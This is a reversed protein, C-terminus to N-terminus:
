RHQTCYNSGGNQDRSCQRGKYTKASCRNIKEPLKCTGPSGKKANCKARIKEYKSCTAPYSIMPRGLKKNVYEHVLYLWATLNERAMLCVDTLPFVNLAEKFVKEFKQGYPLTDAVLNYFMQYNKKNHKDPDYNYAVTHLFYWMNRTHEANKLDNNKLIREYKKYVQEFSPNATKLLGQNRLKNNVKNHVQYMWHALDERNDLFDDIPLEQIFNEYSKRCYICPLTYQLYEFFNKFLRKKNKINLKDYNQAVSHLYLWARPGWSSTNM